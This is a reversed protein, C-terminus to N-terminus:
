GGIPRSAVELGCTAAAGFVRVITGFVLDLKRFVQLIKRWFRELVESLAKSVTAKKGWTGTHGVTSKISIKSSELNV